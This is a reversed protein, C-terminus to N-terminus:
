AREERGLKQNKRQEFKRCRARVRFCRSDATTAERPIAFHNHSVILFSRFVHSVHMHRPSRISNGCSKYLTARDRVVMGSDKIISM